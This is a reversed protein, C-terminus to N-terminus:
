SYTTPPRDKCEFSVANWRSEARRFPVGLNWRSVWPHMGIAPSLPLTSHGTADHSVDPGEGQEAASVPIPTTRWALFDAGSRSQRSSGTVLHGAHEPLVDRSDFARRGETSELSAKKEPDWREQSKLIM